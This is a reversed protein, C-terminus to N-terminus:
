MIPIRLGLIMARSNITNQGDFKPGWNIRSDDNSISGDPWTGNNGDFYRYISGTGQGFENQYKPLIFPNQFALSLNVDAGVRNKQGNAGSKTTIIIVGAAARSGYLAAATPGKLVSISQIDDSAVDNSGAPIGDIVFLPGNNGALSTEGRIVIRAGGGGLNGGGQTINVGAIKGSLSNVVNLEKTKQISEGEIDQVAYGLSKKDRKMGLATIVVDDLSKVEEFLSVNIVSRGAIEVEQTEYGIYSVILTTIEDPVEFSFKGENNTMTGQNAGKTRVTAGILPEGSDSTVTGSIPRNIKNQVSELIAANRRSQDESNRLVSLNGKQELKKIQDIKKHIKKANRTGQKDNKYIILYQKQYFEHSLGAEDLLRSVAKELEEAEQFEFDVQIYKVLKSQYSVIINYKEGLDNLVASLPRGQDSSLNQDHPNAELHHLNLGWFLLLLIISPINTTTACNRM